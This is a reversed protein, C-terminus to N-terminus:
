INLSPNQIGDTTSDKDYDVWTEAKPELLIEEASITLNYTYHYGPLWEENGNYTLPLTIEETTIIESQENQAPQSVYEYQVYLNAPAQPIVIASTATLLDTPTQTLPVDATATKLGFTGTKTTSETWTVTTPTTANNVTLDGSPSLNTIKLAKIKWTTNEAGSVENGAVKVTIWSCAHKMTLVIPTTANQAKSYPGCPVFYMLDNVGAATKTQGSTPSPEGPAYGNITITNDAFNVLPTAGNNINGSKSVGAFWLSKVNPWYYPTVGGFVDTALDNRHTFEANKLYVDTCEALDVIANDDTGDLGANAFVFMNLADPYNNDVVASKASLKSVPAFAIESLDTYEVESKSCAAIAALAVLSFFIKKM